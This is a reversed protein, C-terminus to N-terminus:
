RKRYTIKARVTSKDRLDNPSKSKLWAELAAANDQRSKAAISMKELKNNNLVEELYDTYFNVPLIYRLQTFIRFRPTQMGIHLLAKQRPNNKSM